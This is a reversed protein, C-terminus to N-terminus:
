AAPEHREEGGQLEASQAIDSGADNLAIVGGGAGSGGEDEAAQHPRGLEMEGLQITAEGAPVFPPDCVDPSANMVADGAGELELLLAEEGEAVVLLDGEVAGPGPLVSWGSSGGFGWGVGLLDAM